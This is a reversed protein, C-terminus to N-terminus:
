GTLVGWGYESGIHVNITASMRRVGKVRQVISAAYCAEFQATLREGGFAQIAFNGEIIKPLSV